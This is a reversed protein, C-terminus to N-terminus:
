FIVDKMPCQFKMFVNEFLGPFASNMMFNTCAMIDCCCNTLTRICQAHLGPIRSCIGRSVQSCNIITTSLTAIAHTTEHIQLKTRKFFCKSSWNFSFVKFWIVFFKFTRETFIDIHLQWYYQHNKLWRFLNLYFLSNNCTNKNVIYVTDTRNPSAAGRINLLM